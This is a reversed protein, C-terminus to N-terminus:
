WKGRASEKRRKDLTLEPDLQLPQSLATDRIGVVLRDRIMEDKLDDYECSESLRYLEMIYQESTEGKLQNRRNFCAREFIVNRRVRFFGDFKVIVSDYVAREDATISASSLM